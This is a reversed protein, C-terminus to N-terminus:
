ESEERLEEAIHANGLDIASNCMEYAAMMMEHTINSEKLISIQVSLLTVLIQQTTLPMEESVWLSILRHSKKSLLCFPSHKQFLFYVVPDCEQHNIHCLVIKAHTAGMGKWFHEDVAAINSGRHLVERYRLPDHVLSM